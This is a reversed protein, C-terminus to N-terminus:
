LGRGWGREVQPSPLEKRLKVLVGDLDDIVEDNPFRIVLINLTTIMLTRIRDYEQQNEHIDGDVEVLLREENCYFDAVFMRKQGNHQFIIPKQRVFKVGLKKARIEKWLLSEAQTQHKRLNRVTDTIKKM